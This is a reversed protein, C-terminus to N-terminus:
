GSTPVEASPKGTTPKPADRPHEACPLPVITGVRLAHEVDFGVVDDPVEVQTGDPLDLYAGSKKHRPRESEQEPQGPRKLRLLHAHQCYTTTM